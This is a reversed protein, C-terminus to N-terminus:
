GECVGNSSAGSLGLADAWADLLEQSRSATASVAFQRAEDDAANKEITICLRDDPLEAEFQDPWEIFSVGESEPETLAFFDIDELESPDDLRYLDFHYLPPQAENYINVLNFTPSALAGEIGLGRAVGQVFNTKGAGLGGKLTIVDGARVLSALASARAHTEHAGASCFTMLAPAKRM